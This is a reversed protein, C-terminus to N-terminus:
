KNAFCVQLKTSYRIKSGREQKTQYQMEDGNKWHKSQCKKSCSYTSKCRACCKMRQGDKGLGFKDCRDCVRSSKLIIQEIAAKQERLRKASTEVESVVGRVVDNFDVGCACKGSTSEFSYTTIGAAHLLDLQENSRFTVSGATDIGNSAMHISFMYNFSFLKLVYIFADLLPTAGDHEHVRAACADLHVLISLPDDM